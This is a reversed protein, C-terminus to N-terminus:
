VMQSTPLNPHSTRGIRRLSTACTADRSLRHEFSRHARIGHITPGMPSGVLPLSFTKVLVVFCPLSLIAREICMSASVTFTRICYKSSTVKSPSRQFLLCDGIRTLTDRLGKRLPSERSKSSALAPLWQQGGQPMCYDRVATVRRKRAVTFCAVCFSLLREMYPTMWNGDWTTPKDGSVKLYM